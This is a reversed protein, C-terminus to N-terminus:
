CFFFNESFLGYNNGGKLFICKKVNLGGGFGGLGGGLVLDQIRGQKVYFFERM